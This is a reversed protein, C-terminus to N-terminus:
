YGPSCWSRGRSRLNAIFNQYRRVTAMRGNFWICFEWTDANINPLLEKETSPLHSFRPLSIKKDNIKLDKFFLPVKKNRIKFRNMPHYTLKEM